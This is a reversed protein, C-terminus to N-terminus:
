LSADAANDVVEDPVDRHPGSATHHLIDVDTGPPAEQDGGARIPCKVIVIFSALQRINPLHLAGNCRCSCSTTAKLTEAIKRNFKEKSCSKAPLTARARVALFASLRCCHPWVMPMSQSSPLPLHPLTPNHNILENQSNKM